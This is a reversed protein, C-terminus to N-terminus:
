HSNLLNNQIAFLTAAARTSINLKSYINQVHHGVTKEAVSLKEATQRNTQGQSILRLVEIERPTLDGPAKPRKPARVRHGAAKLVAQVTEREFRGVRVENELTTAADESSYASRHPRTETLAQYVDAVALLQAGSSLDGASLSRHYGSGDLREHHQAAIKGLSTLTKSHAFIREGYYAHLRVREWESATLAGTKDWISNSIGVRGIDHVLAARRLTVSDSAPLGFEEVALAVLRAVGRSHGLTFTSKFDTFDALAELARDIQTDQLWLIPGPEAALTASWVDPVDLQDFLTPAAALFAKAIAPDFQGSARQEVVRSAAALGDHDFFTVATEAVHVVRVALALDSGALGQPAGQGDWREFVQGLAQQVDSEFGLGTALGIAVECQTALSNELSRQFLALLDTLNQNKLLEPNATSASRLLDMIQTADGFDIRHIQQSLALEDGFLKAGNAAIATCGIHRLFSVYYVRRTEAASLGLEQSLAVGMLATRMVWELPQGNGLDMALSLAAILDSSRLQKPLINSASM